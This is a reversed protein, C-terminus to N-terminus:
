YLTEDEYGLEKLKARLRAVTGQAEALQQRLSFETDGVTAKIAAIERKLRTITERQLADHAILADRYAYYLESLKAEACAKVHEKFQERTMGEQRTPPADNPEMFGEWQWSGDSM